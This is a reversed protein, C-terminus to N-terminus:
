QTDIVIFAANSFSSVVMVMTKNAPVNTTFNNYVAIVTTTSNSTIGLSATTVTYNKHSSAALGGSGSDLLYHQPGPPGSGSGSGSGSGAMPGSNNLLTSNALFRQGTSAIQQRLVMVVRELTLLRLDIDDM